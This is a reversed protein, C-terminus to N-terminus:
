VFLKVMTIFFNNDKATSAKTAKVTV